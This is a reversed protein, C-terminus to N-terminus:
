HMQATRVETWEKTGKLRIKAPMFTKVSDKKKGAWWGQVEVDKAAFKYLNLSANALLTAVIKDDKYIAAPQGGKLCMTACAAMKGNPTMHDDNLANHNTGMLYAGKAACSLDVVKGAITVIKPKQMKMKGEAPKEQATKAVATKAVATKTAATKTASGDQAQVVGSLSVGILLAVILTFTKQSTTM